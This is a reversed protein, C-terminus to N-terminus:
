PLHFVTIADITVPGQGFSKPLKGLWHQLASKLVITVFQLLQWTNGGGSVM